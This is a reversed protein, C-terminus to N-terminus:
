VNHPVDIAIVDDLDVDANNPSIMVISPKLLQHAAQRNPAEYASHSRRNEVAPESFRGEEANV